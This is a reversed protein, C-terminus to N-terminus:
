SEFSNSEEYIFTINPDSMGSISHKVCTAYFERIEQMSGNKCITAPTDEDPDGSTPIEQMTMVFFDKDGRQMIFEKVEVADNIKMSENLRVLETPFGAVYITEDTYSDIIMVGGKTAHKHFIEIIGRPDINQITMGTTPYWAFPIESIGWGTLTVGHTPEKQHIYFNLGCLTEMAEVPNQPNLHECFDNDYLANINEILGQLNKAPVFLGKDAPVAHVYWGM